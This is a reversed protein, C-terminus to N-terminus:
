PCPVKIITYIFDPKLIIKSDPKGPESMEPSNELFLIYRFTDIELHTILPILINSIFM